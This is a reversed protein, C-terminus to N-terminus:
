KKANCLGLNTARSNAAAIKPRGLMSGARGAFDAHGPDPGPTSKASITLLSLM